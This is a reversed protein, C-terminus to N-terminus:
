SGFMWVVFWIGAVLLLTWGVVAWRRVWLHAVALGLSWRPPQFEHLNRYYWEIATEIEADTVDEGTTEAVDRLRQRLGDKLEDVAFEREVIARERRLSSAVDMVRLMEAITLRDTETDEPSGDDM